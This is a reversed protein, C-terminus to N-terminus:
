GSSNTIPICASNYIDSSVSRKGSWSDQKTARAATPSFHSLIPDDNYSMIPLEGIEQQSANENSNQGIDTNNGGETDHRSRRAKKKKPTAPVAANKWWKIRGNVSTGM